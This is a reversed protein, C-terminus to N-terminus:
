QVSQCDCSKLTLQQVDTMCRDVVTKIPRPSPTSHLSNHINKM